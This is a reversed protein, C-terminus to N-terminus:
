SAFQPAPHGLHRAPDLLPPNASLSAPLSCRSPKAATDCEMALAVLEELNKACRGCCEEDDWGLVTTLLAADVADGLGTYQATRKVDSETLGKCLCVYM